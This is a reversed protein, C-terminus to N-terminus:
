LGLVDDMNYLGPPQNVAWAAAALAGKAFITRSGAKHTFNVTEDEAAFMVEHEGIIGGARIVAYGIDGSKRAGTQGYRAYSAVADHDVRRGTAAAKGLMLATGSPADVKHRHHSEIVEIDWDPGLRAAAQRVLGAVLNVGLSFNGSQVIVLHEAADAIAQQQGDDFGTTGIIAAKVSTNKLAAIASITANPTTFDIWVDANKCATAVDDSVAFGGGDLGISSSVARETGGVVGFRADGLAAKVLAAGMRGAAGAIALKITMGFPYAPPSPNPLDAVSPARLVLQADQRTSRAGEHTV